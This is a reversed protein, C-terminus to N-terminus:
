VVGLKKQRLDEQMGTEQVRGLTKNEQGWVKVNLVIGM